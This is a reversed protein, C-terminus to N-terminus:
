VGFVDREFMARLTAEVGRVEVVQMDCDRYYKLFRSRSGRLQALWKAGNDSDIIGAAIFREFAEVLQDFFIPVSGYFGVTGGEHLDHFLFEEVDFASWDLKAGGYWAFQRNSALCYAAHEASQWWDNGAARMEEVWARVAPEHLDWFANEEDSVASRIPGWHFEAVQDGENANM